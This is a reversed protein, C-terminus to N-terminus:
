ERHRGPRPTRSMCAAQVKKGVKRFRLPLRLALAPHFQEQEVSVYINPPNLRLHSSSFHSAVRNLTLLVPNTVVPVAGIPNSLM